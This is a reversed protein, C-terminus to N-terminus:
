NGSRIAQRPGLIILGVVFLNASALLLGLFETQYSTGKLAYGIGLITLLMGFSGPLIWRKYRLMFRNGRYEHSADTSSYIMLAFTSAAAVIGFSEWHFIDFAFCVYYVAAGLLWLIFLLNSANVFTNRNVKM